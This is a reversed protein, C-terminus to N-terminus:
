AGSRLDEVVRGDRLRLRRRAREGIQSDYGHPLQAIFEHAYAAQAAAEIPSSADFAFGASLDAALRCAATVSLKLEGAAYIPWSTYPM